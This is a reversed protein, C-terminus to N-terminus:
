VETPHPSFTLFILKKCWKCSSHNKWLNVWLLVDITVIGHDLRAHLQFLRNWNWLCLHAYLVSGTCHAETPQTILLARRDIERRRGGAQKMNEWEISSLSANGEDELMELLLLKPSQNDWNLQVFPQTNCALIHGWHTVCNLGEYLLFPTQTERRQSLTFWLAPQM